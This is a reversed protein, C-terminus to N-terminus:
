KTVKRVTFVPVFHVWVTYDFVEEAGDTTERVSIPWSSGDAEIGYVRGDVYEQAAYFPDRAEILVAENEVNIERDWVKYLM